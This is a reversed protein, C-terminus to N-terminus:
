GERPPLRRLRYFRESPATMAEGALIWVLGVNIYYNSRGVRQKVLVGGRALAELYRTTTLRKVGLDEQVFGITTYPHTFMNNGVDNVDHHRARLM